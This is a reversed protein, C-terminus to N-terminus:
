ELLRKMYFDEVGNLHELMWKEAEDPNQEEIARFINQHEELLRDHIGALKFMQERNVKISREMMESISNMLSQLIENHASSAIADHFNKDVDGGFNGKDNSPDFAELEALAARLQALDEQSRRQSALRAIDTELIKRVELLSLLDQRTLPRVTELSALLEDTKLKTVFTGEGQRISVLGMTKLSGIAERITSQGVGLMEGLERLSPLRQGPKYVGSIIQERVFDAVEEYTKRIKFPSPKM